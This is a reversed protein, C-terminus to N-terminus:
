RGGRPLCKVLSLEKYISKELFYNFKDKEGSTSIMEGKYDLGAVGVVDSFIPFFGCWPAIEGLNQKM